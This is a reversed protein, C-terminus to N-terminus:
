IACGDVLYDGHVHQSPPQHSTPGINGKEFKPDGVDLVNNCNALLHKEELGFLAGTRVTIKSMQGTQKAVCDALIIYGMLLPRSHNRWHLQKLRVWLASSRWNRCTMISQLLFPFKRVLIALQTEDISKLLNRSQYQGSCQLCLDLPEHKDCNSFVSVMCCRVLGIESVKCSDWSWKQEFVNSFVLIEIYPFRMIPSM